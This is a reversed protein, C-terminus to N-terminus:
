ESYDLVGEELVESGITIYKLANELDEETRIQGNNVKDDDYLVWTPHKRFWRKEQVYIYYAEFSGELTYFRKKIVKFKMVRIKKIVRYIYAM